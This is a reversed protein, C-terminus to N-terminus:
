FDNCYLKIKQKILSVVIGRLDATLTVGSEYFFQLAALDPWKLVSFIFMLSCYQDSKLINISQCTWIAM